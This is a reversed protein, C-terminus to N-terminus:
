IGQNQLPGIMLIKVIVKEFYHMKSEGTSGGWENKEAGCTGSKKFTTYGRTGFPKVFKM